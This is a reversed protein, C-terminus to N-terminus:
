KQKRQADRRFAKVVAEAKEPGAAILANQIDQPIAGAAICLFDKALNLEKALQEIMPEGPPNRRDHEIDNLYQPSIAEGDEKKIRGALEKQSLGLARRAESIIKGFTKMPERKSESDM